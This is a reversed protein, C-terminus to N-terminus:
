NLKFLHVYFVRASYYYMMRLVNGPDPGPWLLNKDNM